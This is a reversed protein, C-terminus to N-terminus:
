ISNRKWDGSLPWRKVIYQLNCTGWKRGQVPFWSTALPSSPPILSPARMWATKELVWCPIVSHSANMHKRKLVQKPLYSALRQASINYLPSNSPKQFWIARLQIRAKYSVVKSVQLWNSLRELSTKEFLLCPDSFHSPFKHPCSVQLYVILACAATHTITCASVSHQPFVPPHGTCGWPDPCVDSLGKRRGYLKQCLHAQLYRFIPWSTMKRFLTTWSRELWSCLALSRGNM